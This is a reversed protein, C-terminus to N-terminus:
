VYLLGSGGNKYHRSKQKPTIHWITDMFVTLLVAEYLFISALTNRPATMWGLILRM